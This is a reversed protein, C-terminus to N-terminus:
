RKKKNFGNIGGYKKALVESLKVQSIEIGLNKQIEKRENEMWRYCNSSVKVSVPKNSFSLYKIRRM